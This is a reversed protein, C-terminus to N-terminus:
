ENSQKRNREKARALIRERNERYYDEKRRALIRERNKQYYLKQYEKREEKYRERNKQYNRCNADKVKDPHESAYQRSYEKLREAHEQYYRKAYEKRYAIEEESHASGTDIIHKAERIRYYVVPKKVGYKDAIDQARMGSLYDLLCARQEPSLMSMDAHKYRYLDYDKDSGDEAKWGKYTCVQATPKGQAGRKANALGSRIIKANHETADFGFLDCHNRCWLTLNKCIYVKGEPSTLKWVKANINTEFRGSKPSRKAADTGLQLNQTKGRARLKDRSEDSWQNRKGTHSQSKRIRSCEASCTIKKSSPPCDFPRGCVVCIKKNKVM